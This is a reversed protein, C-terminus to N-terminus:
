GQWVREPLKGKRKLALTLAARTIGMAAATQTLSMGNQLHDLARAIREETWPSGNNRMGM